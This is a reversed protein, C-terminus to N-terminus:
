VRLWLPLTPPQETGDVVVRMRTDTVVVYAVRQSDPSFRLAGAGLAM